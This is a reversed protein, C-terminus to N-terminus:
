QYRSVTKGVAYFCVSDAGNDLLAQIADEDINVTRTYLDDVLLIDKGEIMESIDCTDVTIGQYPLDGTGGHGSRALHTTQTDTHRIIYHTGDEFITPYNQAVRQVTRRFLKQNDRYSDESKARPIVCVTLKPIGVSKRNRSIQLFDDNLIDYLRSTAASLVISSYPTIDNKLTCILNEITGSVKWNGGGQYDSHYFGKIDLDLYENSQITFTNM